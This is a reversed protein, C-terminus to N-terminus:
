LLNRYLNLLFKLANLMLKIFLILVVFWITHVCVRRFSGGPIAMNSDINYVHLSALVLVVTGPRPGKEIKWAPILHDDTDRVDHQVLKNKILAFHDSSYDPLLDPEYFAGLVVIVTVTLIVM